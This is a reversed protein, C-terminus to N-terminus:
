LEKISLGLLSAFLRVGIQQDITLNMDRETLRGGGGNFEALLFFFAGTLLNLYLETDAKYFVRQDVFCNEAFFKWCPAYSLV